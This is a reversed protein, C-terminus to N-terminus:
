RIGVGRSYTIDLTYKRLLQNHLFYRHIDLCGARSRLINAAIHHEIKIVVCEANPTSSLSQLLKTFRLRSLTIMEVQLKLLKRDVNALSNHLRALVSQVIKQVFSPEVDLYPLQERSEIVLNAARLM